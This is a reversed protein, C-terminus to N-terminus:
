PQSVGPAWNGYTSRNALLRVLAGLPLCFQRYHRYWRLFARFGRAMAREEEPTVELEKANIVTM